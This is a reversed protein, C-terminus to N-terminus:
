AQQRASREQFIFQKRQDFGVESQRFLCPLRCMLITGVSLAQPSDTRECQANWCIVVTAVRVRRQEWPRKGVLVVKGM